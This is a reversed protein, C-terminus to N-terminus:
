TRMTPGKAWVVEVLVETVLTAVSIALPAKQPSNSYSVALPRVFGEVAEDGESRCNYAEWGCMRVGRPLGWALSAATKGRYSALERDRLRIFVSVSSACM